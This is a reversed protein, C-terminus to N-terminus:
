VCRDEKVNMVIKKNKMDKISDLHSDKLVILSYTYTDKDASTISELTKNGKNLYIGGILMIISLVVCIVKSVVVRVSKENDTKMMFFLSVNICLIIIIVISAYLVPLVGLLLLSIILYLSMGLLLGSIVFKHTVKNLINKLVQM